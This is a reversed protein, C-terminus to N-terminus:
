EMSLVVYMGLKVMPWKANSYDTVKRYRDGTLNYEGGDAITKKAVAHTLKNNQKAVRQERKWQQLVGFAKPLDNKDIRRRQAGLDFGDNEVKVFLIKKIKKALERDLM